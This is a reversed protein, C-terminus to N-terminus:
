QTALQANIRGWGFNGHRSPYYNASSKLRNMVQTRTWSPYKSWVLAAIGATSATSVSSGGVTSPQNTNDALSLPHDNPTSKEMVYVFDVKSGDHCASCRNTLNTKIGTVAVCQSMSAPWIVGTFWATWSFSTGAACFILKGQNYAYNIGDGMQSNSLLRGMSMSIIKVSANAGAQTFANAVGVSERSEDLYVDTAARYTTLNCNYAIGVANGDTGRPAACAGAMSTGHGCLDNPTEPSGVPNGWFNTEQPLTVLKTINRGSSSGQNFQAGLNDQNDSAGSDIIVVRTGSGTSNAWAQPINHYAYSWSQKCGPALQTYDVGLALGYEPVNSGCGSSSREAAAREAQFPEYGLPEAYRVTENKRLLDITSPNLIRVDFVPLVQDEYYLLDAWTIDPNLERESALILAKLAERVDAWEKDAIKIQHIKSDIDQTGAPQYGVALVHDSQSLAAWIQQNDASKWEFVGTEILTTKIMQDLDASSVAPAIHFQSQDPQPLQKQCGFVLLLLFFSLLVNQKMVIRATLRYFIFLLYQCRLYAYIM